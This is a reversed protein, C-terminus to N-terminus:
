RELRPEFQLSGLPPEPSECLFPDRRNDSHYEYSKGGSKLVIRSGSTVVQAYFMGPQPCGVSADRWSVEEASVLEIEGPDVDLRGALDARAKAVVEELRSL